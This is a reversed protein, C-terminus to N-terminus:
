KQSAIVTLYDNCFAKSLLCSDSYKGNKKQDTLVLYAFCGIWPGVKARTEFYLADMKQNKEDQSVGLQMIKAQGVRMERLIQLLLKRREPTMETARHLQEPVDRWIESREHIWSKAKAVLAEVEKFLQTLWGDELTVTTGEPLTQWQFGRSEWFLRDIPRGDELIAKLTGRSVELIHRLAAECGGKTCTDIVQEMTAPMWAPHLDYLLNSLMKVNVWCGPNTGVLVRRVDALAAEPTYDTITLEAEPLTGIEVEGDAVAQVIRKPGKSPDVALWEDMPEGVFGDRAENWFLWRDKPCPDGGRYAFVSYEGLDSPDRMVVVVKQGAVLRFFLNFHDDQDCGGHAPLMETWDEDSVVAFHKTVRIEGRAVEDDWGALRAASASFIQMHWALPVRVNIKGEARNTFAALHADALRRTLEPAHRFNLGADFFKLATWRTQLLLSTTPQGQHKRCISALTEYTDLLRGSTFQDLVRYCQQQAWEVVEDAPFLWQCSLMAQLNTRVEHGEPQPELGISVDNWGQLERKLNMRHSAIDAGGHLQDMMEDSVVVVNGKLMGDGFLVRANFTVCREARRQAQEDLGCEAVMKKVLSERIYFVGDYRPDEQSGFLHIKVEGHPLTMTLAYRRLLSKLRKALTAKPLIKLGKDLWPSLWSGSGFAMVLEGDDVYSLLSREIWYRLSRLLVEPDEGRRLSPLALKGVWIDAPMDQQFFMQYGGVPAELDWIPVPIPALVTRARELKSAQLKRPVEVTTRSDEQLWLAEYRREWDVRKLAGGVSMCITWVVSKVASVFRNSKSTNQM